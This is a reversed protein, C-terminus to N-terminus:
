VPNAIGATGYIKERLFRQIGNEPVYSMDHWPFTICYEDNLVSRISRGEALMLEKADQLFRHKREFDDSSNVFDFVKDFAVQFLDKSEACMWFARGDRKADSGSAGRYIKEVRGQKIQASEETDSDTKFKKRRGEIEVLLKYEGLM